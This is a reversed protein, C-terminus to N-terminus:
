IGLEEDMLMGRAFGSEAFSFFSGLVMVRSMSSNMRVLSETHVIRRM